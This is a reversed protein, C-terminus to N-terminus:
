IGLGKRAKEYKGTSARSMFIILLALESQNGYVFACVSVKLALRWKACGRPLLRSARAGVM